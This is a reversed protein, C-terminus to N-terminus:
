LAALDTVYPLDALKKEKSGELRFLSAGDTLVVTGSPSLDFAAVREALVKPTGRPTMSVLAWAAPVRVDSPADNTLGRELSAVGRGLNGLELMRRADAARDKTSGSSALPKGTYRMSFFDLYNFVATGLRFPLLAADKVSATASPKEFPSVYPRRVCYLTGDSSMRPCVYDHDKDELLTKMTGHEADLLVVSRPGLGAFQGAEDRGIGASSYVLEHVCKGGVPPTPVWSPDDDFSDGETIQALETGDDKMVAIGRRMKGQMTATALVTHFESSSLGQFDHGTGHFVRAEEHSTLDLAFLGGVAPTRLTYLIENKTRGRAVSTAVIPMDDRDEAWLMGAGGGMFAAGSGGKKWAGRRDIQAARSRVESAYKSDVKESTGDDYVLHVHASAVCALVPRARPRSSETPSM